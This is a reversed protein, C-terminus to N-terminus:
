GDMEADYEVGQGADMMNKIRLAESKECFCRFDEEGWGCNKNIEKRLEIGEHLQFSIIILLILVALAIFPEIRKRFFIKFESMQM